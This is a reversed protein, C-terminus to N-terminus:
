HFSLKNIILYKRLIDAETSVVFSLEADQVM